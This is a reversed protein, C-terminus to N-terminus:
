QFERHQSRTTARHEPMLLDLITLELSWPVPITGIVQLAVPFSSPCELMRDRGAYDERLSLASFRRVCSFAAHVSALGVVSGAVTVTYSLRNAGPVQRTRLATLYELTGVLMIVM